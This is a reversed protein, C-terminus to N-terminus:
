GLSYLRVVIANLGEAVTAGLLKLGFHDEDTARDLHQYYQGYFLRGDSCLFLGQFFDLMGICCVHLNNARLWPISNWFEGDGPDCFRSQDPMFHPLGKSSILWQYQGYSATVPIRILEKSQQLPLGGLRILTDELCAFYPYGCRDILLELWPTPDVRREPSWGQARLWLEVPKSINEM